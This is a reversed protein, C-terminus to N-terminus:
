NLRWSRLVLDPKTFVAEIKLTKIASSAEGTKSWFATIEKDNETVRDASGYRRVLDVYTAKGKNDQFWENDPVSGACGALLLCLLMFVWFASAKKM